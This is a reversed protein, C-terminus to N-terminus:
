RRRSYSPSFLVFHELYMVRIYDLHNYISVNYWSSVPTFSLMILLCFPLVYSLAIDVCVFQLTAWLSNRHSIIVRILLRAKCLSIWDVIYMSALFIVNFTNHSYFTGLQWTEPKPNRVFLLLLWFITTALFSGSIFKWSFPKTGFFNDFVRPIAGNILKGLNTLNGSRLLNSFDRLASESADKEYIKAVSYLVGAVATAVMTMLTLPPVVNQIQTLIALWRDAV